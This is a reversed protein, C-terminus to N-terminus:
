DNVMSDADDDDDAYYERLLTWCVPMGCVHCGPLYEGLCHAYQTAHGCPGSALYLGSRECNEGTIAMFCPSQVNRASKLPCASPAIAFNEVLIHVGTTRGATPMM